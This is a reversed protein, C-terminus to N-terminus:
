QAMIAEIRGKKTGEPEDGDVIGKIQAIQALSLDNIGSTDVGLVSLANYVAGTLMNFEMDMAQASPVATLSLTAATVIATMTRKM